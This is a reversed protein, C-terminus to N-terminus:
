DGRVYKHFLMLEEDSMQDFYLVEALRARQELLLPYDPSCPLLRLVLEPDLVRCEYDKSWIEHYRVDTGLLAEDPWLRIMVSTDLPIGLFGGESLEGISALQGAPVIADVEHLIANYNTGFATCAAEHCLAYEVGLADLHSVAARLALSGSM